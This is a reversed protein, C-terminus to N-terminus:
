VAFRARDRRGRSYRARRLIPRPRSERSRTQPAPAAIIARRAARTGGPFSCTLLAARGPQGRAAGAHRLVRARLPRDNEAYRRAGAGFRLLVASAYRGPFSPRTAGGRPCGPNKRTLLM